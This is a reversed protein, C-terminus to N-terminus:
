KEKVVSLASKEECMINQLRKNINEVTVNKYEELADFLSFGAFYSGMMANAVTDVDNYDMIEKGYLSRRAEEFDENSIGNEKLETVAKKIEAAVEDPKTSEGDFIITEYGFGVFYEKSFRKNILGKEMMSNYLNSTDGALVELIINTEIIDNLSRTPTECLEKYGFSFVPVSVSLHYEDYSSVIEDPEKEFSREIELPEAKKLVKDCVKLVSDVDVNGAVALVMNNLNYFTNYCDYLLKDTIKSISECTGAIDIRVPHNKYLCKLLNFTAMWGPEDYYMTIEQGIIGQEKEVTEKTFYPHTVFDLLIELNEEFKDSCSFLYCTKDFSTYANASAGTKAYREFADLEESEFLKHELFHAIGEPVTVFEKEDNRKFMTDISGYKTAFAAYSTSYNEMPYVLIKLGSSHDIEFYNEGLVSSAIKRM